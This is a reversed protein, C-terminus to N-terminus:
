YGEPIEECVIKGEREIMITKGSGIWKTHIGEFEKIVQAKEIDYIFNMISQIKPKKIPILHEKESVKVTPTKEYLVVSVLLSSDRRRLWDTIKLIGERDIQKKLQSKFGKIEKNTATEYLQFETEAEPNSPVFYYKGNPSFYIDKFNTTDIKDTEPNYRYKKFYINNDFEAWRIQRAREAIKKKEGTNIDYVWVGTPTFGFGGEHYTGAICALKDSGPSWAVKRIDEEFTYLLNGNRDLIILNNKPLVEYGKKEISIKGKKTIIVALLSDDPSVSVTQLYLPEKVSFITDSEKTLPNLKIVENGRIIVFLLSNSSCEITQELYGIFVIVILISLIVLMRKM